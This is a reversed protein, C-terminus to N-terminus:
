CTTYPSERVPASDSAMAGSPSPPLCRNRFARFVTSLIFHVPNFCDSPLLLVAPPRTISIDRDATPPGRQLVVVARAKPTAAEETTEEWFSVSMVTIACQDPGPQSSRSLIDTGVRMTGSKGDRPILWLGQCPMAAFGNRCDTSSLIIM